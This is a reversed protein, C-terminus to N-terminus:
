KKKRKGTILLQKVKSLKGKGKKTELINKLKPYIIQQDLEKYMDTESGGRESRYGKKRYFGIADPHADLFIKTKGLKFAVIEMRKLLKSGGGKQNSCLFLLEVSKIGRKGIAFGNISKRKETFNVLRIFNDKDKKEMIEDLNATLKGKCIKNINDKTLKEWNEQVKKPASTLLM